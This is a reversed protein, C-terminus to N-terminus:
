SNFIWTKSTHQFIWNFDNFLMGIRQSRLLIKASFNKNDILRANKEFQCRDNLTMEISIRKEDRRLLEFINNRQSRRMTSRIMTSKQVWMLFVVFFLTLWVDDKRPLYIDTSFHLFTNKERFRQFWMSDVVSVFYSTLPTILFSLPRPKAQRYKIPLEGVAIILIM